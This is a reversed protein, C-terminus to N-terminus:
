AFFASFVCLVCLLIFHYGLEMWREAVEAHRKKKAIKAHFEKECLLEHLSRLPNKHPIAIKEKYKISNNSLNIKNLGMRRACVPEEHSKQFSSTQGSLLPNLRSKRVDPFCSLASRRRYLMLVIKQKKSVM